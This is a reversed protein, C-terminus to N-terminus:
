KSDINSPSRGLFRKEVADTLPQGKRRGNAVRGTYGQYGGVQVISFDASYVRTRKDVYLGKDLIQPKPKPRPRGAWGKAVVIGELHAICQITATDVSMSNRERRDDGLIVETLNRLGRSAITTSRNETSRTWENAKSFDINKSQSM